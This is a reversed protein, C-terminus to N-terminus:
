CDCSAAAACARHSRTAGRVGRHGRFRVFPPASRTCEGRVDSAVAPGVAGCAADLDSVGKTLAGAARATAAPRPPARGTVAHTAGKDGRHSHFRVFPPASRTYEGRVDSAVAAGVAGCAADLDSGVKTLLGTATAAPLQCRSRVGPSLTHPGNTVVTVISASSRLLAEHTSVACMQLWLQEWQVVPRM